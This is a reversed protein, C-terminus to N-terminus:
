RLKRILAELRLGLNPKIPRDGHPRGGVIIPDPGADGAQRKSDRGDSNSASTMPLTREKFSRRQARRDGSRAEQRHSNVQM